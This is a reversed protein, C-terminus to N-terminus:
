AMKLIWKARRPRSGVRKSRVANALPVWPKEPASISCATIPPRNRAKSAPRSSSVASTTAAAFSVWGKDRERDRSIARSVAQALWFALCALREYHGSEDPRVRPQRRFSRMFATV